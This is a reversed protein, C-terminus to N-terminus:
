KGRHVHWVRFYAMGLFLETIVALIIGSGAYGRIFEFVGLAALLLMSTSLGICIAQRVDSHSAARSFWSLLSIGIFLMAARRSIFEASASEPVAFLWLIVEPVLLLVIFLVATIIATIVNLMRFDLM